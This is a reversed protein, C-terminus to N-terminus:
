CIRCPSLFLPMKRKSPILVTAAEGNGTWMASTKVCSGNRSCHFDDVIDDVRTCTSKLFRVTHVVKSSDTTGYFLFECGIDTFAARGCLGFSPFAKRDLSGPKSCIRRIFPYYWPQLFRNCLTTSKRGDTTYKYPLEIEPSGKIFRCAYRIIAWWWNDFMSTLTSLSIGAKSALRYTNFHNKEMLEKIRRLLPVDSIRDWNDTGFHGPAAPVWILFLVVKHYSWPQLFRNLASKKLLRCGPIRIKTLCLHWHPFLSVPKAPLATYTSLIRRNVQEGGKKNTMM